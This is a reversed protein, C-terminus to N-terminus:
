KRIVATWTGRVAERGHQNRSVTKMVVFDKGGKEFLETITGTTELVDGAKVPEDFEFEQEGHVLMLLNLGLEPDLTSAVFPKIAFNVCFTPPAVLAGHHEKAFDADWYAKALDAPMPQPYIASPVGGGIALAFERIKEAGVEYRYPGYTRGVLATNM